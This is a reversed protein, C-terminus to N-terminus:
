TPLVNISGVCFMLCSPTLNFCLTLLDQMSFLLTTKISSEITLPVVAFLITFIINSAPALSTCKPM